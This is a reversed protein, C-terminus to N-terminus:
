EQQHCCPAQRKQEEADEWRQSGPSSTCVGDQWARDTLATGEETGGSFSFSREPNLHGRRPPWLRSSHGPTQGTGEEGRLGDRSHAEEGRLELCLGARPGRCQRSSGSENRDPPRLGTRPETSRVRSHETPVSVPVCTCPGNLKQCLREPLKIPSLCAKLLLAAATPCAGHLFRVQGKGQVM